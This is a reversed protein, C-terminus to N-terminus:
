AALLGTDSCKYSLGKETDCLHIQETDTQLDGLNSAIAISSWVAYNKKKLSFELRQPINHVTM